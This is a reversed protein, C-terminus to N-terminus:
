LRKPRFNIIIYHFVKKTTRVRVPFMIRLSMNPSLYFSYCAVLCDLPFRHRCKNDAAFFLVRTLFLRRLFRGSTCTQEWPPLSTYPPNFVFCFSGIPTYVTCVHVEITRVNWFCKGTTHYSFSKRSQYLERVFTRGGLDTVKKPCHYSIDM